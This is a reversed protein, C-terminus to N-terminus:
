FPQIWKKSYLSKWIQIPAIEIACQWISVIFEASVFFCGCLKEHRKLRLENQAIENSNRKRFSVSACFVCKGRRKRAIKEEKLVKEGKSHLTAPQLFFVTWLKLFFDIHGIQNSNFWYGFLARACVPWKCRVTSPTCKKVSFKSVIRITKHKHYRKFIFHVSWSIQFTFSIFQVLCQCLARNSSNSQSM